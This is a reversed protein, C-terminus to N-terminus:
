QNEDGEDGEREEEAQAEPLTVSIEEHAGAELDVGATATGYDEATAEIAYQGPGINEFLAVGDPETEREDEVEDGEITVTAGEVPDGEETEVTVRLTTTEGEGGEDAPREGEDQLSDNQQDEEQPDDTCGSIGFLGLAVTGAVFTRRQLPSGNPM